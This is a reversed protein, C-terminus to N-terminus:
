YCISLYLEISFIFGIKAETFFVGWRCRNFWNFIYVLWVSLFNLLFEGGVMIVIFELLLQRKQNAEM